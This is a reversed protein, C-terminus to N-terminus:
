ETSPLIPGAPPAGEFIVGRIDSWPFVTMAAYLGDYAGEGTLIVVNGTADVFEGSAPDTWWAGTQSGQWAGEDNVIRYTATGVNTDSERDEGYVHESTCYTVEGDM